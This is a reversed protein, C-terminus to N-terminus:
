SSCRSFSPFTKAHRKSQKGGGSLGLSLKGGDSMTDEKKFIPLQVGAVNDEATHVRLTAQKVSNAVSASIEASYYASALSLFSEPMRKAVEEKAAKIEKLFLRM